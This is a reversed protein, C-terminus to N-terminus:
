CLFCIPSLPASPHDFLMQLCTGLDGMGDIFSLDGTLDSNDIYLRRLSPLTAIEMPISTGYTHGGMELYTLSTMTTFTEPRMPGHLLAYSIDLKEMNSLKSLFPPVGDYGFYCGGFILEKLKTLFSLFNLGEDGDNFIINNGVNLIELSDALLTVEDPFSGTLQNDNLEIGTVKGDRCTIGFWSCEPAATLWLDANAWSPLGSPYEEDTYITRSAFTAFYICALAYRQTVQEKTLEGLGLDEMYSLAKFQYSELDDFEAGGGLAISSLSGRMESTLASSPANTTPPLTPTPPPSNTVGKEASATGGSSRTGFVVGLVIGLIVVVAVVGIIIWQKKNMTFVRSVGWNHLILSSWDEESIHVEIKHDGCVHANAAYRKGNLM